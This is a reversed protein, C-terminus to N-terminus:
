RRVAAKRRRMLGLGALGIGFLAFTGPEPVESDAIRVPDARVIARSGDEFRALFALQGLNNLGRFFQLDTVELDFLEQGVTIVNDILLHNFHNFYDIPATESRFCIKFSNFLELTANQFSPKSGIASPIPM